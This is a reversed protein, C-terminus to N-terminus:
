QKGKEKHANRTVGQRANKKTNEGEILSDGVVVQQEWKKYKKNYSDKPHHLLNTAEEKYYQM